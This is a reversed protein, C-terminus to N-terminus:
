NRRAPHLSNRDTAFSRLSCGTFLIPQPPIGNFVAKFWRLCRGVEPALGLLWRDHWYLRGALAVWYGTGSFPSTSSCLSTSLFYEAHFNFLYYLSYRSVCPKAPSVIVKQLSIFVTVITAAAGRLWIWSCWASQQPPSPRPPIALFRPREDFNWYWHQSWLNYRRPLTRRSQLLSVLVCHLTWWERDM